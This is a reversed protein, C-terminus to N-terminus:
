FNDRGAGKMQYIFAVLLIAVFTSFTSERQLNM